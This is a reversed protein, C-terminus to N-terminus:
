VKTSHELIKILKTQPSKILNLISRLNGVIISNDSPFHVGKASKIISDLQPKTYFMNTIKFGIFNINTHLSEVIKKFMLFTGKFNGYFVIIPGNLLPILNKHETSQLIKRAVKQNVILSNLNLSKLQTKLQNQSNADFGTHHFIFVTPLNFIEQLKLGKHQKQLLKM